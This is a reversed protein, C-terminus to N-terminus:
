HSAGAETENADTIGFTENINRIKEVATESVYADFSKAACLYYMSVPHIQTIRHIRKRAQIMATGRWDMEAFCGVNARTLTISEGAADINGFFYNVEGSQFLNVMQDRKKSSMGGMVYACKPFAEILKDMVTRHYAFCVLPIEGDDSKDKIFDVVHPVKAIGTKERILSFKNFLPKFEPKGILAPSELFSVGLMYLYDEVTPEAPLARGSAKSLSLLADINEQVFTEEESLIIKVPPLLFVQERFPPLEIPNEHRTMFRDRMRAGLEGLNDAGNIDWGFPTRVASCYRRHFKFWDAGLGTPDFAKCITWLDKPRNMPTATAFIRKPAVIPDIIYQHQKKAPKFGLELAVSDKMKMTGGLVMKTRQAEMNKLRHSEDCVLLDWTRRMKPKHRMLIDYNIIVIDTDVWDDGEVVGVSLNLSLWKPIEKLAWNYKAVAPCILLTSEVGMTNMALLTILSKGLGADEALLTDKRQLIYNVDELQFPFPDPAGPKKVIDFTQQPEDGGLSALLAPSFYDVFPIVLDPDPTVWEGAQLRWGAAELEAAYPADAPARFLDDRAEIM